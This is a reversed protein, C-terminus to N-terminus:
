CDERSIRSQLTVSTSASHLSVLVIHQIGIVKESSCMIRRTNQHDKNVVTLPIKNAYTRRQTIFSAARTVLFSTSKVISKFVELFHSGSLFLMYFPTFGKRDLENKARFLSTWVVLRLICADPVTLTCPLAQIQNSLVAQLYNSFTLFRQTSNTTLFIQVGNFVVIFNIFNVM